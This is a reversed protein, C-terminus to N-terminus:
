QSAWIGVTIGIGYWTTGDIARLTLNDGIVNGAATNKVGTGAAPAVRATDADAGVAAFTMINIADGTAPTVLIEGSAHGCLFTFELGAAAAPLTFTQTGSAASAVLTKGSDDATLTMDGSAVVEVDSEGPSVTKTTGTPVGGVDFAVRKTPDTRDVIAFRDAYVEIDISPDPRVSDDDAVGTKEWYGINVDDYRSDTM